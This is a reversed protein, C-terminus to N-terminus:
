GFLICVCHVLVGFASYLRDLFQDCLMVLLAIEGLAVFANPAPENERDVAYTVSGIQAIKFGFLVGVVYLRKGVVFAAVVASRPPLRM